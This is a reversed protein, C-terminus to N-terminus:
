WFNFNALSFIAFLSPQAAKELELPPMIVVAVLLTILVTVLLAPYLRRFRRVYFERLSFRARDVDFLINRTIIFGSIVFFLDVGLYGGSFGPIDLHFLLVAMVALARMGELSAIFGGHSTVRSARNTTSDM